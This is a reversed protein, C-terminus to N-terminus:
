VTVRGPGTDQLAAALREEETAVGFSACAFEAALAHWLRARRLMAHGDASVEIATM